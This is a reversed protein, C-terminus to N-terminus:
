LSKRKDAAAQVNLILGAIEIVIAFGFIFGRLFDNHSPWLNFLFPIRQWSIGVVILMLGVTIM